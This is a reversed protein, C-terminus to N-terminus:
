FIFEAGSNDCTIHLDNKGVAEGATKRIATKLRKLDSEPLVFFQSQKKADDVLLTIAYAGGPRPKSITVNGTEIEIQGFRTDSQIYFGNAKGTIPYVIFDQAKRMRPFKATFSITGLRNKEIKTIM